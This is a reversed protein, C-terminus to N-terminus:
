DNTKLEKLNSEPPKLGYFGILAQEIAETMNEQTKLWDALWPTFRFTIRPRNTGGKGTKPHRGQGRGPGGQGTLKTTTTM